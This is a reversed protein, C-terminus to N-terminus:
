WGHGSSLRTLRIFMRMIELVVGDTDAYESVNDPFVDFADAAGDGDSDAEFLSKNLAKDCIDLRALRAGDFTVGSPLNRTITLQYRDGGLDPVDSPQLPYGIRDDSAAFRLYINSLLRMSDSNPYRM